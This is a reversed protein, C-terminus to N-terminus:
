RQEHFVARMFKRRLDAAQQQVALQARLRDEVERSETWLAVLQLARLAPGVVDM